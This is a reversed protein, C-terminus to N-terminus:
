TPSGRARWSRSRRRSSSTTSTARDGRDRRAPRGRPHGRRLRGVVTRRSTASSADLVRVPPQLRGFLPDDGGKSNFHNAIAFVTRGKWLFEAPSRSAAATSRRTPRTSAARATSAARRGQADRRRQEAHEGHAGPRDVFQSAATPATCSASASTAAAARRRGTGAGPDIQRFEYTPGGAAQSRRSSGGHVDGDADTPAPSAAGDNDQIEEVALIDPSRLNDVVIAALRTSSTRRTAGADLNEVNM